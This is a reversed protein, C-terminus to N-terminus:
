KSLRIINDNASSPEVLLPTAETLILQVKEDDYEDSAEKLASITENLKETDVRNHRALLIKDNGTKENIEDSYFLEEHLKEGSRLGIYTIDIDEGPEKGSLRIMQEALYTIKVPEGMDLVFVDGKEDIVAVQLILQCAERITMFYRTIEPHTVTVPGGQSIQENFLQVVSGDSGLVNGFRVAIFRTNSTQDMAQCYLEAVRKSYGLVNTPNVAKDTSIFVFKECAYKDAAEALVVTALVNNRIAETPHAQLIPVQKYAAAHFIMQPRHKKLVNEVTQRDCVDGLITILKVQPFSKELDKTIRYLNFESREFIILSSPALNAIQRCLESGISGGGGSVMITKGSLGGHILKWDLEVKERGLLDEISVERLATTTVQGSVLDEFKPLTRFPIATRECMEVVRRMKDSTLSPIAILILNIELKEVLVPIQDTNGMVRIGHLERGIKNQGDDVLGVPIFHKYRHRLMDRVLLEAAQGAGVILVRKGGYKHTRYDKLWRYLLRNGALISFLLLSYLPIVSRPLQQMRTMLFIVVLSVLVGFFVAKAIRVFDPISAFRWVGRYLGFIIFVGAQIMVILPLLSLATKLFQPPITELNFRLWYAGLWALPISLLDHAFAASRSRLSFIFNIGKM